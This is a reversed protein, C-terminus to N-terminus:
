LRLGISRREQMHQQRSTMGARWFFGERRKLVIPHRLRKFLQKLNAGETGPQDVAQPTRPLVGAPEGIIVGDHDLLFRLQHGSGLSMKDTGTGPRFAETQVRRRRM